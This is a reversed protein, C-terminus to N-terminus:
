YGSTDGRGKQRVSVRVVDLTNALTLPLGNSVNQLYFLMGNRVWEGTTCAGMAPSPALLAGDPTGVRVELNGTGWSVWKVTTVSLEPNRASFPAPNPSAWILGIGLGRALRLPTLLMVAAKIGLWRVRARLPDAWHALRFWVPHKYLRMRRSLMARFEDLNLGSGAVYTELWEPRGKLCRALHQGARELDGQREREMAAEYSRACVAKEILEHYQGGLFRDMQDYQGIVKELQGAASLASWSGAGHQLYVAMVRDIYGVRGSRAATVAMAWDTPGQPGTFDRWEQFGSVMERRFMLTSNHVSATGLLEELPIREPLPSSYLSWPARDGEEYRLESNHFCLPCDPWADLFEAQTQLKDPETWFDDGDLIAIYRGRCMDLGRMFIEAGAHGLNTWPLLLRVKEPNRNVIDRLVAGSGDTSGDDCIVVEFSFSAQQSLVSDIATRIYREHNFCTVLVSVKIASEGQSNAPM